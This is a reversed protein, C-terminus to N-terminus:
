DRIRQLRLETLVGDSTAGRQAAEGLGGTVSQALEFYQQGFDIPIWYWKAHDDYKGKYRKKEHYARLHVIECNECLYPQGPPENPTCILMGTLRLRKKDIERSPLRPIKVPQLNRDVLAANLSEGFDAIAQRVESLSPIRFQAQPPAERAKELM